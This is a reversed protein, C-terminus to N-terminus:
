ISIMNTSALKYFFLNINEGLLTEQTIVTHFLRSWGFLFLFIVLKAFIRNKFINQPYKNERIERFELKEFIERFSIKM